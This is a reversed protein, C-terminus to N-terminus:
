RRSTSRNRRKRPELRLAIVRSSCDSISFAAASRRKSSAATSRSWIWASEFSSSRSVRLPSSYSQCGSSVTNAPSGVTPVRLRCRVSPSSRGIRQMSAISM